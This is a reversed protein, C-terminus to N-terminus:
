IDPISQPRIRQSIVPCPIGQANGQSDAIGRPDTRLNQKLQKKIRFNLFEMENEKRWEFCHPFAALSEVRSDLVYRWVM